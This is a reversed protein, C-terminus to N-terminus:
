KSEICKLLTTLNSQEKLVSQFNTPMEYDDVSDTLRKPSRRVISWDPNQIDPIYFVQSAESALIAPEDYEGDSSKLKKLNVMLLNSDPWIKCGHMKDAINVWEYYFVVHSFEYYDVEFIEKIIGYWTTDDNTPNLDKVSAVFTTIADMCVGSDQTSLTDDYRQPSFVYGNIRYKLHTKAEWAPGSVYYWLLSDMCKEEM